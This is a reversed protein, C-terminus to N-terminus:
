ASGKKGGEDPLVVDVALVRVREPPAAQLALDQAFSWSGRDESVFGRVSNNPVEIVQGTPKVIRCQGVVSVGFGEGCDFLGIAFRKFRLDASVNSAFRAAETHAEFTGRFETDTLDRIQRDSGSSIGTFRANNRLDIDWWYYNNEANAFVAYYARGPFWFDRLWPLGNEDGWHFWTTPTEDPIRHVTTATTEPVPGAAGLHAHAGLLHAGSRQLSPWLLGFGENFRMGGAARPLSTEATMSVGAQGGVQSDPPLDFGWIVYGRGELAGWVDWKPQQVNITVRYKDGHTVQQEFVHVKWHGKDSTVLDRGFGDAFDRMAITGRPTVVEYMLFGSFSTETRNVLVQLRVNKPAWFEYWDDLDGVMPEGLGLSTRPGGLLEGEFTNVEVRRAEEIVDPADGPIGADNQPLIPDAFTSPVLGALPLLLFLVLLPSARM